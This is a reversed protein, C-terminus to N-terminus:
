HFAKAFDIVVSQFDSEEEKEGMLKLPATLLFFDNIIWWLFFHTLCFISLM